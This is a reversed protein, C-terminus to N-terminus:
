KPPVNNDNNRLWIDKSKQAGVAALMSEMRTAYPPITITIEYLSKKTNLNINWRSKSKDNLKNRYIKCGNYNVLNFFTTYCAVTLHHTEPHLLKRTIVDKCEGNATCHNVLDYFLSTAENLRHQAAAGISARLVKNSKSESSTLILNEIKSQAKKHHLLERILWLRVSSQSM